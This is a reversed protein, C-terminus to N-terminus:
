RVAEVEFKQIECLDNKNGISFSFVCPFSDKLIHNLKDLDVM